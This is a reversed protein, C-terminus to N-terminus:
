GCRVSHCRFADQAAGLAEAGNIGHRHMFQGQSEFALEACGSDSLWARVDTFNVDATLDQRGINQYLDPGEMRQQLLYGRLTGRPRRHYLQPLVDGYDIALM